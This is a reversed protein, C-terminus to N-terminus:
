FPLPLEVELVGTYFPTNLVMEFIVIVFAWMVLSYLVTRSWPQEAQRRYYALLFVLTGPLFGVLLIVGFLALTWLSIALVSRREDPLPREIRGGGVESSVESLDFVDTITYRGVLERLGPSLQLVLLVVLMAFTPIGIVFPFLQSDDRYQPTVALLTGLALLLLVTFARDFHDHDAGLVRDIGHRWQGRSM